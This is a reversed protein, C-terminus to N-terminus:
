DSTELLEALSKILAALRHVEKKALVADDEDLAESIAPFTTAGYGLWKGPAVGLHRYWERDKIGDESLFGGEFSALKRNIKRVARAAKIIKYLPGHRPLKPFSSKDDKSHQHHHYHDDAEIVIDWVHSLLDGHYTYDAEDLELQAIEVHTEESLADDSLSHPTRLNEEDRSESDGDSEHHGYRTSWHGHLWSKTWSTLKAWLTMPALHLHIADQKDPLKGFNQIAERLDKEAKTKEADLSLSAKQLSLIAHRLPSFDTSLTHATSISEVLALYSELELAYQTTNLPLVFSDTIRMVVLGLYKAYAVQRHFGPDGYRQQWQHSDYVSHYHYAADSPTSGFSGDLSAIGLRQLFVTFDSGSGLPFVGTSAPDEDLYERLDKTRQFSAGLETSIFPDSSQSSANGTFPGVDYRADFLTRNADTPHPLSKAVGQMLHALSPSGGQFFVSGSASVDVNAYAVVHKSLFEAFDEGYETSGILGYEEADWSAIAITRLPRWGQRLLTGLGKIIEAVTVTGSTPDGAGLVWADRHNGLMVIEDRILGPLVGMTNWIPIVRTDVLNQLRVRQVSRSGDMTFPASPNIEKLIHLGNAWSIPLSPIVPVNGGDVRTANPYAPEGPTSPDGPYSSIFQVSGREVADPHIAPGDPYPAYGAAETATGHDRADTYLLVGICGAEQARKIKLGRVVGGYRAVAITGTLNAGAAALEDFDEKRGYNVYVAPGTVDGSASFGHFTKIEFTHESAPDGELPTEDVNAKWVVAGEDDVIELALELPTNMVPYYKDIWASPRFRKPIGLTAERSEPSGADYLPLDHPARIGFETQLLSLFDKATELDQENGAIHPFTSYQKGTAIASEANPVSIFLEEAQQVTLKGRRDPDLLSPRSLNCGPVIESRFHSFVSRGLLFVVGAALFHFARRRRRHGAVAAANRTYNASETTPLLAGKEKSTGADM